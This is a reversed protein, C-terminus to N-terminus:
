SVFKGKRSRRREDWLGGVLSLCLRLIGGTRTMRIVMTEMRMLILYMRALCRLRLVTYISLLISKEEGRMKEVAEM